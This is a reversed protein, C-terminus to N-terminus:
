DFLASVPLEFGPVVDGGTLTDAISFLTQPINPAYVLVSRPEPDIVWILRVDDTLYAAVKRNIHRYTDDPSIIEVVLDPVIVLPKDKWDPHSQIYEAWREARIFLLDPVRAGKVWQRQELLVFPVEYFVEGLKNTKVHTHLPAFLNRSVNQHGTVVPTLIFQEGDIIEFPEANYKEIWEALSILKTAFQTDTM